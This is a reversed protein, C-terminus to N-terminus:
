EDKDIVVADNKDDQLAKAAAKLVEERSNTEDAASEGTSYGYKHLLKAEREATNLRSEIDNALEHCRAIASDDFEVPTTMQQAKLAEIHGSLRASVLILRDREQQMKTLRDHATELTRKKQELVKEHVKNTEKLAVYENTYRHLKRTLESAAMKDGHFVFQKSNSELSKRMAAIDTKLENQRALQQKFNKEFNDVEEEMSAVRSINKRIDKDINAIEKNLQKLQMEPPVMRQASKCCDGLWVMPSIKTVKTLVMMGAIVAVAAILLKKIM